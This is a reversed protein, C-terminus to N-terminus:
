CWARRRSPPRSVDYVADGVASVAPGCGLVDIDNYIDNDDDDDDIFAPQDSRLSRSLAWLRHSHSTSACECECLSVYTDLPAEDDEPERGEGDPVALGRLHLSIPPPSTSVKRLSARFVEGSQPSVSASGSASSGSPSHPMAVTDAQLPSAPAEQLLPWAAPPQQPQQQQQQQQQLQRQAFIVAAAPDNPFRAAAVRADELTAEPM